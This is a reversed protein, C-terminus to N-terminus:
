RQSMEEFTPTNGPHLSASIPGAFESGAEVDYLWYLSLNSKQIDKSILSLSRVTDM